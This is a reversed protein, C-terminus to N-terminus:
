SPTVGPYRDQELPLSPAKGPPKEELPELIPPFPGDQQSLYNRETESQIKQLQPPESARIVDFRCNQARGMPNATPFLVSIRPIFCRQSRWARSSRWGELSVVATGINLLPQQLAHPSCNMLPWTQSSKPWSSTGQTQMEGHFDINEQNRHWHWCLGFSGLTKATQPPDKGGLRSFLLGQFWRLESM